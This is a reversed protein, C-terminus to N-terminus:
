PRRACSQEDFVLGTVDEILKLVRPIDLVAADDLDVALFGDVAGVGSVVVRVQGVSVQPYTGKKREEM